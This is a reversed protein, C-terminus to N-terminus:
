GFLVAHQDSRSFITTKAFGTITFSRVVLGFGRRGHFTPQLFVRGGPKLIRGSSLLGGTRVWRGRTLEMVM